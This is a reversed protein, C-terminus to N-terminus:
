TNQKFVNKSLMIKGFLLKWIACYMQLPYLDNMKLTAVHLSIFTPESTNGSRINKGFIFRICYKNTGPFILIFIIRRIFLM